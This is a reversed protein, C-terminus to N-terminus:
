CVAESNGISISWGDTHFQQSSSVVATVIIEFIKMKYIYMLRDRTVTIIIITIFMVPVEEHLKPQVTHIIHISQKTCNM